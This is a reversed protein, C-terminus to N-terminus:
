SGPADRDVPRCFGLGFYRGAGIIVPGRVPESFVLRAHVLLRQTRDRDSPFRPFRAPKESGPLVVSTVVDVEDPRPLGVRECAVRITEEAEEFARRRKVGDQHGLEGPNRDLAIPTASAWRKAPGTWTEPRLTAKPPSGFAIREVTMFGAKGLRVQLAPTEVESGARVEQEWRGVARLVARRSEDDVDRPMVAAVGLIQGDAFASGVFPLPVFAVHAHQAPSGDPGHGSLIPPVPEEAYKLVAARMAQAIGEIATIPFRDGRTREFVLWDDGFVSRPITTTSPTGGRRYRSFAYPLIRPEVGRHWQYADELATVQGPRPVRLVEVGDPDPVLPEGRAETVLRASVLSSSHGVRVIRSCMSSLARRHPDPADATWAFVFRPEVPIVSAFTRSQRSRSEPFVGRLRKMDEKSVSPAPVIRKATDARLKALAQNLAKEARERVKGDFPADALEAEAKRVNDRASWPEGVVQVDNVPVFVPVATRHFAESCHVHPPTQAALWDLATREAQDKGAEAWAAVLASYLRAPHPPWEAADRDSFSTAVYRGTLLEVEIAFM